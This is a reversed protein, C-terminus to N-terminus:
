WNNKLNEQLTIFCCLDWFGTQPQQVIIKTTLYYSFLPRSLHWIYEWWTKHLSEHRCNMAIEQKFFAVNFCESFWEIDWKRPDFKICLHRLKLSKGKITCSTQTPSTIVGPMRVRKKQHPHDRRLNKSCWDTEQDLCGILHHEEYFYIIRMIELLILADFFICGGHDLMGVFFELSGGHSKQLYFGWPMMGYSQWSNINSSLWSM